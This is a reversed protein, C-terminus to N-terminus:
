RLDAFAIELSVDCLSVHAQGGSGTFRYATGPALATVDGAALEIQTGEVDLALTGSLNFVTLINDPGVKGETSSGEDVVVHWGKLGKDELSVIDYSNEPVPQRTWDDGDRFVYHQPDFTGATALVDSVPVHAAPLDVARGANQDHLRVVVDYSSTAFEELVCGIVSHITSLDNVVTVDGPQPRYALLSEDPRGDEWLSVMEAGHKDWEERSCLLVFAQSHPALIHFAEIKMTEHLQISFGEGDKLDFLAYGFPAAYKVGYSKYKPVFGIRRFFEAFRVKGAADLKQVGVAEWSTKIWAEVAEAEGIPRPQALVDVVEALAADDRVDLPSLAQVAKADLAERLTSPNAM